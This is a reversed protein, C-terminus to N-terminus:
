QKKDLLGNSKLDKVAEAVFKNIMFELTDEQDTKMRASWILEETQLDYMVSEVTLVSIGRGSPPQYVARYGTNLYTGWSGYYSPVSYTRVGGYYPGPVYQYSGRPSQLTAKTKEDIVRTLLVSDCNNAKMQEIIAERNNADSIPLGKSSPVAKVGERALQGYFANEFYTRNYDQEVIGIIYVNKIQRNYEPDKWSSSSRTGACASIMAGVLLVTMGTRTLKTM